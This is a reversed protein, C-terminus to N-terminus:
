TCILSAQEKAGRAGERENSKASIQVGEVTLGSSSQYTHDTTTGM